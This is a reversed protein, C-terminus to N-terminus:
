ELGYEARKRTIEDDVITGWKMLMDMPNENANVVNWFCQDVGRAVYYSGPTEPIEEVAKWQELLGELMDGDWAMKQVAEVNSSANRGLTGLIAELETSYQYQTDSSTWWQLFKWANDPNESMKLIACGTGSGASTHKVSGDSQEHGPIPVMTWRGDIETAAEKITAYMTYSQIGLPMTGVRFRNYFDYTVPCKYKTYLDSWQCFIDIAAADTLNTSDLESSYMDVGNQLLLSPYLSLGGVGVNVTGTSVIQTYPLGVQLNSRALVTLVNLFETWTTPIDIGLDEFVDTRCFMMYFNQTDPLAYCGGQYEYPVTAGPMFRECVAPFDEFRSLDVLIGRMALNVPETRSQQLICDPGNGSVVAQVVTTNVVKLNVGINYKPVFQSQILSNLVQAQDRGWNVWITISEGSDSSGSVNNYDQTFSAVFRQISFAMKQFINKTIVCFDEEPNALYLRDIGLPMSRMDNVCASLSGYNTYYNDKYRHAIYPNQIMKDLVQIMSRIVSVYSGGLRGTIQEINDAEHILRNRCDSLRSNLDPIQEFLDYSRYTDVTEGTVITIDMYVDGLVRIIDELNSCIGAMDGQTVTLSIEHEGQTLYLPLENGNSDRLSQFAWGGAYDFPIAQAQSFPTKGDIKLCRYSTGNLVYDQRYTFGLKYYGDESVHVKWVITDGVTSWNSGGIYNIRSKVPDSPYPISSTSDAQSILSYKNKIAAAEGELTIQKGDYAEGPYSERYEEYSPITEPVNLQLSNLLFDGKVASLTIQHAGAELYILYPEESWGSNSVVTCSHPSDYPVQSASFENGNGDVRAEDGDMWFRPLTFGGAETFPLRGDVEFSVELETTLTDETMYCLALTYVATEPIDVLFAVSSRGAEMRVCGLEDTALGASNVTLEIGQKANPASPMDHLYTTYDTNMGDTDAYVTQQIEDGYVQGNEGTTDAMLSEGAVTLVTTVLLAAISFISVRKRM